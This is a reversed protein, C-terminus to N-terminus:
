PQAKKETGISPQKQTGDISGAAGIQRGQFTLSGTSAFAARLTGTSLVARQALAPDALGAPTLVPVRSVPPQPVVLPPIATFVGAALTLYPPAGYGTFDKFWTPREGSTVYFVNRADEVFFPMDWQDTVDQQATVTREPLPGSLIQTPSLGTFDTNTYGDSSSKSTGYQAAITRGGTLIRAAVPGMLQQRDVDQWRLPASHTNHLVFGASKTWDYSFVVIPHTVISTFAQVSAVNTLGASFTTFIPWTAWLGSPFNDCSTVQVYLSTDSPDVATWPRLVVASRQFTGM